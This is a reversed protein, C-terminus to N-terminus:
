DLQPAYLNVKRGPSHKTSEHCPIDAPKLVSEAAGHELFICQRLGRGHRAEGMGAVRPMGCGSNPTVTARPCEATERDIAVCAGKAFILGVTAWPLQKGVWSVRRHLPSSSNQQPTGCGDRV